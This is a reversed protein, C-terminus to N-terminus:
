AEPEVARMMGALAGTEMGIGAAGIADAAGLRASPTKNQNLKFTNEVTEISMLAPRITRMMRDLVSPTMKEATWVKKPALRREMSESLEDLVGRLEDQELRRLTGSLHVAVYNWTPVQDEVGYWDPSVYGDPGSVILKAKQPQEIARWVPNSALLHLSITRDSRLVYPIHASLPAEPGNMTLVGFGRQAAFELATQEKTKRYIPNPHM